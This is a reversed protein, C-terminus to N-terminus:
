KENGRFPSPPITNILFAKELATNHGMGRGEMGRGTRLTVVGLHVFDRANDGGHVLRPEDGIFARPAPM